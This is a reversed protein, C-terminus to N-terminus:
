GDVQRRGISNDFGASLVAAELLDLLPANQARKEAIL